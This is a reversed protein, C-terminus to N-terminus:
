FGNAMFVPIYDEWKDGPTASLLIWRNKKNIELFAKSWAGYGVVRQEDFIFFASEIETYDKIKNWSDIVVKNSYFNTEPSVGLLFPSLEEEWEFSDRKKATTIIYLDPPNNMLQTTASYLDGGYEKYYYALATRSKGSGVRGCLICGDKMREVADLQSDDLRIM